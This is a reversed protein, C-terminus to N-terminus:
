AANCIFEKPLHTLVGRIKIHNSRAMQRNQLNFVPPGLHQAVILALIDVGM